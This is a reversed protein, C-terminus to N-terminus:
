FLVLLLLLVGIEFLRLFTGNHTIDIKNYKGKAMNMCFWFLIKSPPQKETKFDSRIERQM